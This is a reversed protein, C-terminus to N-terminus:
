QRLGASQWLAVSSCCPFSNSGKVAADFAALKGSCKAAEFNITVFPKASLATENKQEPLHISIDEQEARESIVNEKWQLLMVPMGLTKVRQRTHILGDNIFSLKEM